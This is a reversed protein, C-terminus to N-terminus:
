RRGLLGYTPNVQEFTLDGLLPDASLSIVDAVFGGSLVVGQIPCGCRDIVEECLPELNPVLPVQVTMPMVVLTARVLRFVYRESLNSM